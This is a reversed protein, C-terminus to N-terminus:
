VFHLTNGLFVWIKQALSVPQHPRPLNRENWWLVVEKPPNIQARLIVGASKIIPWAQLGKFMNFIVWNFDQQKCICDKSLANSRRMCINSGFKALTSILFWFKLGNKCCGQILNRPWLLTFISPAILTEFYKKFVFLSTAYEPFAFLFVKMSLKISLKHTHIIYDQQAFPM